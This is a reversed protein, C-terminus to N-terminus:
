KNIMYILLPYLGSLGTLGIDGSKLGWFILILCNVCALGTLLHEILKTKSDNFKMKHLINNIDDELNSLHLISSEREDEPVFEQQNLNYHDIM